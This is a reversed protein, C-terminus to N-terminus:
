PGELTWREADTFVRLPDLPGGMKLNKRWAIHSDLQWLPILPMHDYIHLHIQHTRQQVQPFHRHGMATRFLSQLRADDKYGLYNLGGSGVANPDFLPWLWYSDDAYDHHYYALDYDHTQEVDERLRHPQLPILEFHIQPNAATVQAAIDKCAAEVDPDGDPYKLRLTVPLVGAKEAALATTKALSPKYPDPPVLNANPNYAWSGPPYPGNLPRHVTPRGARFRETLIKERDIAHAITRRLDENQLANIRHNVALFYIRRNQLTQVKVLPQLQPSEIDNLLRTPLDLLLHLQTPRAQFDAAPAKSKFFRIERIRPLGERGERASYYSNARFVAYPIKRDEYKYPGSGLPKRAFDVSDPAAEGNDPPLVKFNMLTLPQFYGQSLGLSIHFADGRPQFRHMLAAWEPVYGPWNESSLWQVTRVVDTAILRRGDAWCAKRSLHFVRGLPVLEPRDDALGSEYAPGGV